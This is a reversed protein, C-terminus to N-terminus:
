TLHIYFSPAQSVEHIYRRKTRSWDEIQERTNGEVCFLSRMAQIDTGEDPRRASGPCGFAFITNFSEKGYAGNRLYEEIVAQLMFHGVLDMWGTTPMWDGLMVRAATLEVFLPLLCHLSPTGEVDTVWRRRELPQGLSSALEHRNEALAGDSLPFESSTDFERRLAPLHTTHQQWYSGRKRNQARLENL